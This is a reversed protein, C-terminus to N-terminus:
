SMVSIVFMVILKSILIIIIGAITYIVMKKAKDKTTDDGFSFILFLGAIILIIVAALFVYNLVNNVINVIVQRPSGSAVGNVQASQAGAELGPGNYVQASSLPAIILISVVTAMMLFASAIRPRLTM